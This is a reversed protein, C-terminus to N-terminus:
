SESYAISTKEPAVTHYFDRLDSWIECISMQKIQKLNSLNRASPSRYDLIQRM